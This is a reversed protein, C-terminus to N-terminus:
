HVTRAITLVAVEAANCNRLVRACEKVTSGSTYVDDILIIKQGQIKRADRVRFVGRVNSEREVKGLNIQPDTYIHRSLTMFDLMVPFKKIIERSLILSQNFGRERLRKPHLPVPMILSYDAISLEPYDFEAMMKGLIKGTAIKGHYKFRHITELLITEYRGLSRAVSYPPPSTICDGCLHNGGASGPFPIGCRSCLPATIFHIENSCSGCFPFTNQYDVIVDCSLCRPPFVLDALGALIRKLIM